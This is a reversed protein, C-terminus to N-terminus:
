RNAFKPFPLGKLKGPKDPRTLSLGWDKTLLKRRARFTNKNIKEGQAKYIDVSFIWCNLLFASLNTYRRSNSGCLRSLENLTDAEGSIEIDRNLRLIEMDETLLNQAMDPIRSYFSKVTIECGYLEALEKIKESKLIRHELRLVGLCEDRKEASIRKKEFQKVSELFKSYLAIEESKNYFYATNAPDDNRNSRVTGYTKYPFPLTSVDNLRLFVESQSRNRLNKCLDIERMVASDIDFQFLKTARAMIGPVIEIIRQLDDETIEDVNNGYILKPASFSVYLFHRGYLSKVWLNM